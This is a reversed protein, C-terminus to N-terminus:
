FGGQRIRDRIRMLAKGLENRGKGDSGVGWFSDVPSDEILEANGTRLLEDKLDEHQTFKLFVTEEMKAISVNRWDSRKEPEFRQAESFAVRPARSCTRIHAALRPRHEFKFSQFLHESTPYVEGKYRIPHPSFNTFAYHPETKDYFLIPPSPSKPSSSPSSGNSRAPSRQAPVSM